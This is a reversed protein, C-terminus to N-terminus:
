MFYRSNEICMCYYINEAALINSLLVCFKCNFLTQFEFKQISKAVFQFSLDKNYKRQVKKYQRIDYVIYTNVTTQQAWMFFLQYRSVHLIMCPAM